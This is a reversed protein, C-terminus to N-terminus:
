SAVASKRVAEVQWRVEVEDDLEGVHRSREETSTGEEVLKVVVILIHCGRGAALEEQPLQDLDHKQHM